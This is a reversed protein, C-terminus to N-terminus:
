TVFCEGDASVVGPQAYGRSIGAGGASFYEFVQGTKLVDMGFPRGIFFYGHLHTYAGTVGPTRASTDMFCTPKFTAASGNMAAETVPTRPPNTTMVASSGPM